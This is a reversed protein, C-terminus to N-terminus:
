KTLLKIFQIVLSEFVVDVELVVHPIIQIEYGRNMFLSNSLVTSQLGVDIFLELVARQGPDRIFFAQVQIWLRISLFSDLVFM